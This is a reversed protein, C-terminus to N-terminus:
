PMDAEHYAVCQKEDSTMVRSKKELGFMVRDTAEELDIEEVQAAGRRAFTEEVGPLRTATIFQPQESKKGPQCKLTDILENPTIEVQHLQDADIAALFDSFSV